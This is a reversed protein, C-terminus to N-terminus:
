NRPIYHSAIKTDDRTDANSSTFALHPGVNPIDLKYSKRYTRGDQSHGEFTKNEPKIVDRWQENLYKEM